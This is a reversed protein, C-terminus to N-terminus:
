KKTPTKGYLGSKMADKIGDQFKQKAAEPLPPKVDAKDSDGCGASGLLLIGGVGLVCTARICTRIRHM